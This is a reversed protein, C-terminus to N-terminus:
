STLVLHLIDEVPDQEVDSPIYPESSRPFAEGSRLVVSLQVAGPETSVGGINVDVRLRLRCLETRTRAVGM